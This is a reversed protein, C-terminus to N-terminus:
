VPSYTSFYQKGALNKLYICLNGKGEIWRAMSADMKRADKFGTESQFLYYSAGDALVSQYLKPILIDESLTTAKLADPTAIYRVGIKGTYLPYVNIAGGSRYWKVPTGTRTVAPDTKTVEELTTATLPINFANDWVCKINFPKSATAPVVGNECDLVETILPVDSSHVLTEQLIESYALNLYRLFVPIDSDTPEDLGISLTSMLILLESVDM